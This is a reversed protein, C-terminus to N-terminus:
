LDISGFWRVGCLWYWARFRSMGDEILLDHLLQDATGKLARPLAGLRILQCLADHVLSAFMTSPSDFTPGSAGDWAYRAKMTLSTEDLLLYETEFFRGLQHFAEPLEVTVATLREYKWNHLKRYDMDLVLIM